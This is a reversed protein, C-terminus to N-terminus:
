YYIIEESFFAIYAIKKENLSFDKPRFIFTLQFHTYFENFVKAGKNYRGPKSLKIQIDNIKHDNKSDSESKTILKSNTDKSSIAELVLNQKSSAQKLAKIRTASM